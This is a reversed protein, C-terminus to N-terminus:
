FKMGDQRPGRKTATKAVKEVAKVVDSQRVGIGDGAADMARSKEDLRAIAAAQDPTLKSPAETVAPAVVPEPVPVSDPVSAQAESPPSSVAEQPTGPAPTFAPDGLNRVREPVSGKALPSLGEIPAPTTAEVLLLPDPASHTEVRNVVESRPKTSDFYDSSQLEETLYLGMLVDSFLDRAAFGLARYYLMRKMFGAWVAKVGGARTNVIGARKSEAWTFTYDLAENTDSRSMSIRCGYDDQGETGVWERRYSGLLKSSRILGLALDGMLSARGKVVTISSMSQIPDIGIAQGKMISAFIQATSAGEPGADGKKLGEAVAWVEGVSAFLVGVGPKVAANFRQAPQEPIKAPLVTADLVNASKVESM